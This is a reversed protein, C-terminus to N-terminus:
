SLRMRSRFGNACTFYLLIVCVCVCVRVCMDAKRIGPDQGPCGPSDTGSSVNVWEFKKCWRKTTNFWMDVALLKHKLVCEESPIIKVNRVKAKDEQRVIVYHVTSKVPGAAYTVVPIGAEHVFHQLHSLEIKVLGSPICALM